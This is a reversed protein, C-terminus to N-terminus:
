GLVCLLVVSSCRFWLVSSYQSSLRVVDDGCQVMIGYIACFLHFNCHVNWHNRASFIIYKMALSVFLFSYLYLLGAKLLNRGMCKKGYMASCLDVTTWQDSWRAGSLRSRGAMLFASLHFIKVCSFFQKLFKVILNPFNGSIAFFCM